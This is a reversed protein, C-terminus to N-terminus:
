KKIVDHKKVLDLFVKHGEAAKKMVEPVVAKIEAPTPVGDFRHTFNFYAKDKDMPGDATNYHSEGSTGVELGLHYYRPAKKDPGRKAIPVKHDFGEGAYDFYQVYVGSKTLLSETKFGAAKIARAMVRRLAADVKSDFAVGKASALSIQLKM